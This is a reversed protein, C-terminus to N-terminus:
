SSTYSILSLLVTVILRETFARIPQLHSKCRRVLTLVHVLIFATGRLWGYSKTWFLWLYFNKSASFLLEVPCDLVKYTKSSKLKTVVELNLNWLLFNNRFYILFKSRKFFLICSNFFFDIWFNLHLEIYTTAWATDSINKKKLIACLASMWTFFFLYIFLLSYALNQRSAFCIPSSSTSRFHLWCYYSPRRVQQATM